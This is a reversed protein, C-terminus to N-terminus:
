FNATISAQLEAIQKQFLAVSDKLQTNEQELKDVNAISASITASAHSSPALSPSFVSPASATVWQPAAKFGRGKLLQTLCVRAYHNPRHSHNCTVNPHLQATYKHHTSGCCFCCPTMYKQWVKCIDSVTSVLSSLNILELIISADIDIANPNRFPQPIASSSNGTVFAKPTYNAMHLNNQLDNVQADIQHGQIQLEALMSALTPFYSLQCIYNNTLTAKLCDMLESESWDTHPAWTNFESELSAFSRKGQRLNYLKNKAEM